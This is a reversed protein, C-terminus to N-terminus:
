GPIRSLTEHAVVPTPIVRFVRAREELREKMVVLGHADHVQRPM